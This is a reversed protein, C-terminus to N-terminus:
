QVNITHVRQVGFAPLTMTLRYQGLTTYTSNVGSTTWTQSSSVTTANVTEQHQWQNMQTNFFTITGAVGTGVRNSTGNLTTTVFSPTNLNNKPTTITITPPLAFVPSSCFLAVAALVAVRFHRLNMRGEGIPPIHTFQTVRIRLRNRAGGGLFVPPSPNKKKQVGFLIVGKVNADHLHVNPAATESATSGARAFFADDIICGTAWGDSLALRGSSLFSM